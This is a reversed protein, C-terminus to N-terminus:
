NGPSHVLILIESSLFRQLIYIRLICIRSIYIRSICIRIESVVTLLVVRTPNKVIDSINGLPTAAPTVVRVGGIDPTALTVPTSAAGAGAGASASAGAILGQSTM